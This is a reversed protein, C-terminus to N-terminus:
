GNSCHATGPNYALGLVEMGALALAVLKAYTASNSMISEGVVANPSELNYPLGLMQLIAETQPNRVAEQPLVGKKSGPQPTPATRVFNEPISTGGRAALASQARSLSEASPGSRASGM